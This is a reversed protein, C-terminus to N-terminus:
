ENAEGRADDAMQRTSKWWELHRRAVEDKAERLTEHKLPSDGDTYVTFLGDAGHMCITYPTDTWGGYAARLRAVWENDYSYEWDWEDSIM